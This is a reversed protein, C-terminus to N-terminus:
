FRVRLGFTWSKGNIDYTEYYNPNVTYRRDEPEGTINNGEVYVKWGRKFEYGLSLDFSEGVDRIYNGGPGRRDFVSVQKGTYTYGVRASMGRQEWYVQGHFIHEPQNEVQSYRKYSTITYPRSADAFLPAERTGKIYAYNLNFGLGELLAPLRQFRHQWTFEGGNIEQIVGNEPRSVRFFVPAGSNTVLPAGTVPNVAQQNTLRVIPAGIYNDMRKYFYGLSILNSPGYYHEIAVDINDSRQAGLQPNRVTVDITNGSILANPDIAALTLSSDVPVLSDWDPRSLTKSWGARLVDNRSFRYVAMASPVVTGYDVNNKVDRFAIAGRNSRSAPWRYTADTVEYRLGGLLRLNKWDYTGMAYGAWIDELVKAQTEAEEQAASFPVDRFMATNDRNADLFRAFGTDDAVFGFDQFRDYTSFRVTGAAAITAAPTATYRRVQGANSRDKFRGKFGTKLSVPNDAKFDIKWDANLSLDRDYNDRTRRQVDTIPYAAPNNFMDVAGSNFAYAPFVLDRTRDWSWSVNSYNAEYTFDYETATFTSSGYVAGYNFTSNGLVTQGKFALRLQEYERDPRLRDRKRVRIRGVGAAKLGSADTLNARAIDRFQLQVRPRDDFKDSGNFWAKFNLTTTDSVKWDLAANLAFEQSEEYQKNPNIENLLAPAGAVAETPNSYSLNYQGFERSYDKWNLGLYVGVTRAANVVNGYTASASYGHGGFEFMQFETSARSIRERFDFASATKLEVRGGISDGDMDATPTKIVEISQIAETPIKRLDIGRTSGQSGFGSLNNAAAPLSDGDLAIANLKGEMGRISIQGDDGGSVNIGPLRNLASRLNNDPLEGITDSSVVNSITNAQRQRNLAAIQEGAYSSVQFREMVVLEPDLGVSVTATQGAQVQVQVNEPKSGGYRVELTQAGVPVNNLRFEGRTDSTTALETGAVSIRAGILNANHAANFVNGAVSGTTQAQLSLSAACLWCMAALWLHGRGRSPSLLKTKM